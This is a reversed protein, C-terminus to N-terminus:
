RSTLRVLANWRKLLLRYLIDYRCFVLNGLRWWVEIRLCAIHQVVRKFLSEYKALLRDIGQPRRRESAKSAQRLSHLCISSERYMSGRLTGVMVAFGVSHM